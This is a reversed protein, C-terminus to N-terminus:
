RGPRAEVVEVIRDCDLGALRVAAELADMSAAEFLHLLAQDGPVVTTRLYTVGVAVEGVRAARARQDAVAADTAYSEVIYTPM